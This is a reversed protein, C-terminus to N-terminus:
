VELVSVGKTYLFVLALPRMLNGSELGRSDHGSIYDISSRFSVVVVAWVPFLQNKFLAAQMAGLTYVVMSDSIGDLVKLISKRTPAHSRNRRFDMIFMVLFLGSIAIVLFEIRILVYPDKKLM